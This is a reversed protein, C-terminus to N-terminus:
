WSNSVRPGNPGGVHATHWTKSDSFREYVFYETGEFEVRWLTSALREGRERAATCIAHERAASAEIRKDRIEIDVTKDKERWEPPPEYSGSKRAAM